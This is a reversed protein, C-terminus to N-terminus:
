SLVESNHLSLMCLSSVVRWIYVCVCRCVLASVCVAQSLLHLLDKKTKFVLMVASQAVRTISFNNLRRSFEYLFCRFFSFDM